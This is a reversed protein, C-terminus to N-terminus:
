FYSFLGFKERPKAALIKRLFPPTILGPHKIKRSLTYLKPSKWCTKSFKFNFLNTFSSRLNSESSLIQLNFNPVFATKFSCKSSHIQFSTNKSLSAKLEKPNPLPAWTPFVESKSTSNIKRRLRRRQAYEIKWKTRKLTQSGTWVRSREFRLYHSPVGGLCRDPTADCCRKRGLRKSLVTLRTGLSLNSGTEHENKTQKYISAANQLIFKFAQVKQFALKWKKPTQYLRELRSFKM